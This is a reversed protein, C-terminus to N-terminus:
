INLFNASEAYKTVRLHLLLGKIAIIQKREILRAEKTRGNNRLLSAVESLLNFESYVNSINLDYISPLVQLLKNFTNRAETHNGTIEQCEYLLHLMKVLVFVSMSNLNYKIDLKSQLNQPLKLIDWLSLIGM